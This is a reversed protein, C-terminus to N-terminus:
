IGASIHICRLQLTMTRGGAWLPFDAVREGGGGGLGEVGTLTVKSGGARQLVHM